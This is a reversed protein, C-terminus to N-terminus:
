KKTSDQIEKMKLSRKKNLFVNDSNKNEEDQSIEEKDVFNKKQSVSDMKSEGFANKTRQMETSTPDAADNVLFFSHTSNSLKGFIVSSKRKWEPTFYVAISSAIGNEVDETPTFVTMVIKGQEWDVEIGGYTDKVDCTQHYNHGCTVRTVRQNDKPVVEEEEPLCYGWAELDVEDYKNKKFFCWPKEDMTICDRYEIGEYVFPFKCEKFFNGNGQNDCTRLRVRNANPFVKDRTRGIGSAVVEYLTQSPGWELSAPM